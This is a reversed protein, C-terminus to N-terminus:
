GQEVAKKLNDLAAAADTSDKQIKSVSSQIGSVDNKKIANEVTGIDKAGTRLVAVLKDQEDQAGKPPNLQDIKGAVGSFAARIKDLGKAREANTSASALSSQANNVQNRFQNGIEQVQKKYQAPTSASSGDGGSSKGGGGGCGALAIFLSSAAVALLRTPTPSM